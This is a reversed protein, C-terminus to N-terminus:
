KHKVTYPLSLDGSLVSYVAYVGLLPTDASPSVEMYATVADFNFGLKRNMRWAPVLVRLTKGDQVVTLGPSDMLMPMGPNTPPLMSVMESKEIQAAALKGPVREDPQLVVWHTHFIAGDDKYDRNNDEDWLPTDDFDPHATVALAVVGEAKGFGVDESRLNTPFVYGLVPAGDMGGAPKPITAGAEGKVSLEFVLLEWEAHYTVKAATIDFNPGAYVLGREAPTDADNLTGFVFVSMLVLLSM